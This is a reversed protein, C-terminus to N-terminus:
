VYATGPRPDSDQFTVRVQQPAVNLNGPTAFSPAKSASTPRPQSQGTIKPKGTREIYSDEDIDEDYDVYDQNKPKKIQRAPRGSGPTNSQGGQRV